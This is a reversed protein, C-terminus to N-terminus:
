ETDESYSYSSGAFEGDFDPIRGLIPIDFMDTLDNEDKIRTDKVFVFTVYVAALMLGIVAGLLVNTTYNPAYIGTPVKAHDIVEASSGKVINPGEAPIVSALVNAIRAAEEPNTHIVRIAFITTDEFQEVSIGSRLQEASYEIDLKEIAKDLIADSQALIMYGKVLYISASLDASTLYGESQTVRNNNVCITAEAQYTPTIAFLTIGLAIAGALIMCLVLLKWRRLYAILLEQVNLEMGSERENVIENM